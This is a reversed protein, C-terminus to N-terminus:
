AKPKAELSEAPEAKGGSEVPEGEPKLKDLLEKPPSRRYGQPNNETWRWLDECAKELSIEARWGLEHNARAPNATLNLVDGARRGVVEYPLTKGCAKEFAKIMHFVTSGKGTGLNWARVGPEYTRLYALAMLHGRALDIIHVYDRIATGDESAYDVTLKTLFRKRHPGGPDVGHSIATRGDGFVLLKERKGAAVQALLPLLNYPVGQPDEGMIGNPHAGAPNFYRLFGANWMNAKKRVLDSPDKLANARQATIHDTIMNEVTAKTNGYPNTPGIPCEEPIPIMNPFRTADGYVTASSSFVINSVNHRTM